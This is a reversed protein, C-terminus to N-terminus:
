ATSINADPGQHGVHAPRRLLRAPERKGLLVRALVRLELAHQPPQRRTWKPPLSTYMVSNVLTGDDRLTVFIVRNANEAALQVLKRNEWSLFAGYGTLLAVGAFLTFAYRRDRRRDAKWAAVAGAFQQQQKDLPM